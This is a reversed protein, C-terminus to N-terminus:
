REQLDLNVWVSNSPLLSRLSGSIAQSVASLQCISAYCLM